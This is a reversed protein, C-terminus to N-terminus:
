FAAVSCGAGKAKLNACFTAASAVDAFGGTRLRYVTRGAVSAETVEAKRGGLLDPAQRVLTEWGAEAAAQDAFAALQVATGAHAPAAHALPTPPALPAAPPAVVTTASAHQVPAAAAVRPSGAQALTVAAAKEAAQKAAAAQAQALRVAQANAEAQRALQRKVERLQAKLTDLEPREAAPALKPEGTAPGGGLEAGTVQMGGPNVPKIRVPGAEAEIVPVGHRGPRMLLGGGVLLALVGGVGAALLGMRKLEPDMGGAARPQPRYSPRFSDEVRVPGAM